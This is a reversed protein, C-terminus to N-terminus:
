DGLPVGELIGDVVEAPVWRDWAVAIVPDERRPSGPLPSSSILAAKPWGSLHQGYESAYLMAEHYGALLYSPDSSFKVEFVHGRIRKSCRDVTVTVDPRM